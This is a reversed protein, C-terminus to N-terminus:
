VNNYLYSSPHCSECCDCDYILCLTTCYLLTITWWTRADHHSKCNGKVTFLIPRATYHPEFWTRRAKRDLEAIHSSPHRHCNLSATTHISQKLLNSWLILLLTSQPKIPIIRFLRYTDIYIIASTHVAEMYERGLISHRWSYRQITQHQPLQQTFCFGFTNVIKCAGFRM